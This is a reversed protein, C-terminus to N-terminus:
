GAVPSEHHRVVETLQRAIRPDAPRFSVGFGAREGDSHIWSVVSAVRVRPLAPGPHLVVEIRDGVSPPDQGQSLIFAGGASIDRLRSSRMSGSVQWNVPINSPLRRHRRAAAQRGGDLVAAVYDLKHGQGEDLRVGVRPRPGGEVGTVSGTFIVEDALPGFSVEVRVRTGPSVNGRTAILLEGASAEDTARAFEAARLRVTRTERNSTELMSIGRVIALRKGALLRAVWKAPRRM